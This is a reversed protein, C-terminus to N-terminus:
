SHVESSWLINEDIFELQICLIRATLQSLAFVKPVFHVYANKIRMFKIRFFLSLSHVFYIYTYIFSNLPGRKVCLVCALVEFPHCEAWLIIIFLECSFYWCSFATAENSAWLFCIRIINMEFLIRFFTYFHWVIFSDITKALVFSSRSSFNSHLFDSTSSNPFMFIFEVM